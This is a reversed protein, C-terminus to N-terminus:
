NSHDARLDRRGWLWFGATGLAFLAVFLGTATARVHPLAAEDMEAQWFGPESKEGLLWTGFNWAAHMGIPVALGRTSVAAMGWLLSGLTTGVLADRWGYGILFRHYLAFALAVVAQAVVLGYRRQLERLCYGRFSAEEMTALVLFLVIMALPAPRQAADTPVFSVEPAWWTLLGLHVLIMGAGLALGLALRAASTRRPALGVDALTRGSGRLVLLTLGYAVATLAAGTGIRGVPGPLGATIPALGLITAVFAAWFLAVSRAPAHTSRSPDIM